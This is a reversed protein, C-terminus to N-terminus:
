DPGIVLSYSDMAPPIKQQRLVVQLRPLCVGFGIVRTASINHIVLGCALKNIRVLSQHLHHFVIRARPVGCIGVGGFFALEGIVIQVLGRIRYLRDIDPLFDDVARSTAQLCLLRLRSIYESFWM